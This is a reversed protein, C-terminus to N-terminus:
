SRIFGMMSKVIIMSCLKHHVPFSPKLFIIWRILLASLFRKMQAVMREFTTVKKDIAIVLQNTEEKTM